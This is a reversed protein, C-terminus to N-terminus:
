LSSCPDGSPDPAVQRTLPWGHTRQGSAALKERKGSCPIGLSPLRTPSETALTLTLTETLVLSGSAHSGGTGYPSLRLRTRASSAPNGPKESQFTASPLWFISSAEGGLRGLHWPDEGEQERCRLRKKQKLAFHKM